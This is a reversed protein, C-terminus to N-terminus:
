KIFLLAALEDDRNYIDEYFHIEGKDDVWATFYCHLGPNKKLHTGNKKEMNM